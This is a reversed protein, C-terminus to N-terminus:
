RFPICQTRSHGDCTGSLCSLFLVLHFRSPRYETSHDLWVIKDDM